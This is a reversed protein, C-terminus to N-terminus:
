TPYIDLTFPLRVIENSGVSVKIPFFTACNFIISIGSDDLASKEVNISFTIEVTFCAICFLDSSCFFALSISATRLSLRADAIVSSSIAASM